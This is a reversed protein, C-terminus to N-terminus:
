SFYRSISRHGVTLQFGAWISQPGTATVGAVRRRKAATEREQERSRKETRQVARWLKRQDDEDDCLENLEYEEVVKWGLQESDAILILKQRDHLISM